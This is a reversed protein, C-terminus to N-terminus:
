EAHINLGVCYELTITQGGCDQFTAFATLRYSEGPTGGSIIARSQYGHRNTTEAVLVPDTAAGVLATGDSLTITHAVSVLSWDSEVTGSAEDMNCAVAEHWLLTIPRQESATKACSKRCRSAASTPACCSGGIQTYYAMAEERSVTICCLSGTDVIECCLSGTVTECCLGASDVAICCADFM